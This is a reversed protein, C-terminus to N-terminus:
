IVNREELSGRIKKSTRRQKKIEERTGPMGLDFIRVPEKQYQMARALLDQEQKISAEEERKTEIKVRHPTQTLKSCSYNDQMM